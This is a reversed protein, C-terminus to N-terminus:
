DPWRAEIQVTRVNDTWPEVTTIPQGDLDAVVAGTERLRAMCARPDGLGNFGQAHLEVVAVLNRRDSVRGIQALLAAEFGEVDIKVLCRGTAAHEAVLRAFDVMPKRAGGPAVHGTTSGDEEFGIEGDAEGVVAEVVTVRDALRNLAVTQRLLRSARTNPEVCTIRIDRNRLAVALAMTGLNSGVDIMTTCGRSLAVLRAQVPADRADLRYRGTWAWSHEVADLCIVGDHFRQKVVHDRLLRRGIRRLAPAAHLRPVLWDALRTALPTM